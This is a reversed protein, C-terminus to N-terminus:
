IQYSMQINEHCFLYEDESLAPKKTVGGDKPKLVVEKSANKKEPQKNKWKSFKRSSIM